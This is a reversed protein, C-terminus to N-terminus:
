SAKLWSVGYHGGGGEILVLSAGTGTSQSPSYGKHTVHSDVVGSLGRSIFFVKGYEDSGVIPPTKQVM